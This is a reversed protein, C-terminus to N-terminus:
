ATAGEEKIILKHGSDNHSEAKFEADVVTAADPTFSVTFGNSASGVLTVRLKKGDAKTHVFRLLRKSIARGSRGGLILTRTGTSEDESYECAASLAQLTEANWTLVGSKFTIDETTIFRMSVANSDDAVSYESPKYEISAGGKIRGLMNTETEITADEPIEAGDAFATSYLDGSGLIIQKLEM